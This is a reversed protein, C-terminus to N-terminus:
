SEDEGRSRERRIMSVLDNFYAARKEVLALLRRREERNMARTLQRFLEIPPDPLYLRWLYVAGWDIAAEDFSSWPLRKLNLPRRSGLNLIWGRTGGARTGNGIIRENAIGTAYSPTWLPPFYGALSSVQNTMKNFLVPRYESPAKGEGGVILGATNADLYFAIEGQSSELFPIAVAQPEGPLNLDYYYAQGSNPVDAGRTFLILGTRTLVPEFWVYDPIIKWQQAGPKWVALLSQGPFIKTGSFALVRGRNDLGILDYDFHMGDHFPFAPLPTPLPTSPSDDVDHVSGAGSQLEALVKRKDNLDVARKLGSIKTSLDIVPVGENQWLYYSDGSSSHAM